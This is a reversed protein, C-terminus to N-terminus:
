IEKYINVLTILAKTIEEKIAQRQNNMRSAVICSSLETGTEKVYGNKICQLIFKRAEKEKLNNDSILSTIEKEQELKAFKNFAEAINESEIGEKFYDTELFRLLLDKKPSLNLSSSILSELEEVFQVRDYKRYYEIIKQYIYHLNIDESKIIETEFKIDDWIIPKIDKARIEKSIKNYISQLDQFRRTNKIDDEEKFESYNILLNRVRLFKNFDNIFEKKEEDSLESVDVPRGTCYQNQIINVIEDYEPKIENYTHEVISIQENHKKGFLIIANKVNESLDRFCVINGCQKVANLIRNTRSFAQILGHYQLNQDVYLTNLTPSDFGTLFMKVVILLDIEKNKLKESVNRYYNSTADQINFNTKFMENYDAIARALFEKQTENPESDVSLPNNEVSENEEYSFITAIKLKDEDNLNQMQVKFEDYYLMAAETSSVAFIANFGNLNKEKHIFNNGRHCKKNITNIVYNTIKSIRKPHMLLDNEAKALSKDNIEAHKKIDEESFDYNVYDILFRLVKKDRIADTIIYSHLELGFIRQTTIKNKSADTEANEEFIPTGTFGFRFAKTFKQAISRQFEGFQSRHCEDFIMVCSKKYINHNDNNKIFNNLKQITTVIIKDSAKEINQKLKYTSTSNDVSGPSFREYEKITQDDLDKRDVVFFVKDVFDLGKALRATKFSTLTKGSGTTHWIYGGEQNKLNYSTNIKLLIRETAAIQYPRMILLEDRCDFVCYKALIELITIKQFFTLTFDEIDTIVRNKADAWQMTYQEHSKINSKTNPFYSTETGNSIVFIQVWKYLSKESNFSEKKYRDIQDFADFLNEGRRKLEIHVLPLGNVLISVDYINNGSKVQNIVQLKNNNINNKDFIIINKLEESDFEFDHVVNKYEGDNHLKKAKEVFTDSSSDLYELLFRRWEDNNFTINNLRQIQNRLNVFLTDYFYKIEDFKLDPISLESSAKTLSPLESSDYKIYEYGQKILDNIFQQELEKESQYSTNTNNIFEYEDLIIGKSHELIPNTKKM